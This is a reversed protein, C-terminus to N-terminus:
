TATPSSRPRWREARTPIVALREVLRRAPPSLGGLRALLVDRVTGPVGHGGAALVETVFFPNGETM